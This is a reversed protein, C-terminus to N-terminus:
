KCFCCVKLVRTEHAGLLCGLAAMIRTVNTRVSPESCQLGVEALVGLEEDSVSPLPSTGGNGASAVFSVLTQLVSRCASTSAELLEFDKSDMQVFAMQALCTWMSVLGPIGGLDEPALAQVM